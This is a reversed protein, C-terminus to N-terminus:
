SFVSKKTSYKKRIYKGVGDLGPFIYKENVGLESLQSLIKKKSSKPIEFYCLIGNKRNKPGEDFIMHQEKPIMDTFSTRKSGWLMFVSSQASMREERYAPRYIVPYQTCSDEATNRTRVIECDVVGDILGKAYTPFLIQSGFYTENYASENVIWVSANTDILNSCAFYLAVLPNETFDLLRTPAGFHQAIEMWAILDSTPVDMIYRCGDSIFDALINYELLSYEGVDYGESSKTWRFAGPILINKKYNGQGRYIFNPTTVGGAGQFEGTDSLSEYSYNRKLKEIANIYETLTNIIM